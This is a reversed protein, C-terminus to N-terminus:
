PQEVVLVVQGQSQLAAQQRLAQRVHRAELDRDTVHRGAVPRLDAAVEVLRGPEAVFEHDGDTIHASVRQVRRGDHGLQAV